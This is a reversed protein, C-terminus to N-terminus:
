PLKNSNLEKLTMEREIHESEAALKESNPWLIAEVANWDVYPRKSNLGTKLPCGLAADDIYIQAYCKPSDTWADQMPNRQIGFLPIGREEFWKVADQLHIGSRMTWLILRGGEKVIRHLVRPAGIHRGVKPYEHTVCTGDFDVAIVRGFLHDSAVDKQPEPLTTSKDTM